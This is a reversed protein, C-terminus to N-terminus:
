CYVFITKKTVREFEFYEIYRNDCRPYIYESEISHLTIIRVLRFAIILGDDFEHLGIVARIFLSLAM